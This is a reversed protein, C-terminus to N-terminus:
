VCVCDTAEDVLILYGRDEGYADRVCALDGMLVENFRGLERQAPWANAVKSALIKRQNLM